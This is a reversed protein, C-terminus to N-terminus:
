AELEHCTNPRRKGYSRCGPLPCYHTFGDRLAKVGVEVIHAPTDLDPEGIQLHIIERGEAELAKARALVEFETETGLRGLGVALEM